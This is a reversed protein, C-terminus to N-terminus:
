WRSQSPGPRSLAVDLINELLDPYELGTKAAALVLEGDKGLYPNPNAEIIFYEWETSDTDAPEKKGEPQKRRLRMDIRGYDQMKFAKFVNVAAEQIEQVLPEPLDEPFHEPVRFAPSDPDWKAKASAFNPVDPVKSFDWELIPLAEPKENGLVSVYIERGDIYEEVLAAVGFETHIFSIRELLEKVSHVIAEEGIGLSADLNLPKTFLPFNLDDAWELQGANVAMFKPYRLGHFHLLKKSLAKDQALALGISGSGTFRLDLVELLAALHQERQSIGELSECLNFVIDSQDRSLADLTQRISQAAMINVSHGRAALCDRVSEYVLHLEEGKAESESKDRDEQADYLVTVTRTKKV